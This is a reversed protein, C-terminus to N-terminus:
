CRIVCLMGLDPPDRDRGIFLPPQWAPLLTRPIRVGRRALLLAVGLLLGALVALCLGLVGAGSESVPEGSDWGAAHGAVIQESTDPASAARGSHDHRTPDSAAIMVNASEPMAGMSHAGTHSGWGHMSLLGFLAVAVAALAFPAGSARTSARNRM